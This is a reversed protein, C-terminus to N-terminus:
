CLLKGTGTPSELLCNQRNNAAQIILNMMEKQSDYPKFPFHIRVGHAEHVHGATDSPNSNISVEEIISEDMEIMSLSEDMGDNFEDEDTSSEEVISLTSDDAM